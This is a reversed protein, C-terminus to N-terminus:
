GRALPRAAEALGDLTTVLSTRLRLAEARPKSAASRDFRQRTREVEAVLTRANAAWGEAVPVLAERFAKRAAGEGEAIAKGREELLSTIYGASMLGDLHGRAWPLFQKDLVESAAPDIAAVDMLAKQLSGLVSERVCAGLYEADMPDLPGKALGKKTQLIGLGLGERVLVDDAGLFAPVIVDGFSMLLSAATPRDRDASRTAEEAGKELATVAEMTANKAAQLAELLRKATLARKLERAKRLFHTDLASEVAAFPDSGTSSHGTRYELAENGRLPVVDVLVDGLQERLYASLEDRESPDLTDVKNLVGLVQRGSERLETLMGVESAAGSRTASFVWVVADAEDLFERAVQEHYDDLANLGPTDVVAADGMRSGSREIEMHRIRQAEEDDLGHLFEQVDGKDIMGIRGDRYHVRAGGGTGRRFVNITTTTPLVGMPAIAEGLLANVFTSKGASFEGMTAITLPRALRERAAVVRGMAREVGELSVGQIRGPVSALLTTAATLLEELRPKEGTALHMTAESLLVRARTNEPRAVLADVLLDGALDRLADDALCAQAAILKRESSLVSTRLDANRLPSQPDPGWPGGLEPDARFVPPVTTLLDSGVPDGKAQRHRAALLRLEEPPPDPADERLRREVPGVLDDDFHDLRLAAHALEALHRDRSARAAGAATQALADLVERIGAQTLPETQSADLETLAWLRRGDPSDPETQLLRLTVERLPPADDPLGVSLGVWVYTRAHQAITLRDLLAHAAISDGKAAMVRALTALLGDDEPNERLAERVWSEADALQGGILALEVGHRLILRRLGGAVESPTRARAKQLERLSREENGLRLQAIGAMVHSLWVAESEVPEPLRRLEPMARRILDLARGPDGQGLPPGAAVLLPAGRGLDDGLQEGLEELAKYPRGGELVDHLHTLAMAFAVFPEGPHEIDAARLRALATSHDGEFRLARAAALPERLAEPIVPRGAAGSAFAGVRRAFGGIAQGVARFAGAAEAVAESAAEDPPAETDPSPEPNNADDDAM